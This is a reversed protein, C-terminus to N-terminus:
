NMAKLLAGVSTLVISLAVIPGRPYEIVRRVILELAYLLTVVVYVLSLPVVVATVVVFFVYGALVFLGVLRQQDFLAIVIPTLCLLFIVVVRGFARLATKARIVYTVSAFGSLALFVVVAAFLAITGVSLEPVTVTVGRVRNTLTMWLVFAAVIIPWWLEARSHRLKEM